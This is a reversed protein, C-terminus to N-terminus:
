RGAEQNNEPIKVGDQALLELTLAQYAKAAHSDPAHYPIPLGRSPAEALYISRPIISKFVVNPFHNNVDQVVDQGLRTRGDFMTLLIGRIKMESFLTSRVRQITKTLEGLGELALYECQVPIIVGNRAAVLGNVTLISLSPPCDILVYDYRDLVPAITEKLRFERNPLELLEVEAGALAPSSPLLSIKLKPNHLIQPSLPAAGILVEYTGQKVNQKDIGLSSTANAQPDLDIILVRQGLNGM